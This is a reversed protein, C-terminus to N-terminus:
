QCLGEGDPVCTEAYPDVPPNRYFADVGAKSCDQKPYAQLTVQRQSEIYADEAEKLRGTSEPAGSYARQARIFDRAKEAAANGAEERILNARACTTHRAEIRAEVIDDIAKNIRRDAATSSWFFLGGIVVVVVLSLLGVNRIARLQAM